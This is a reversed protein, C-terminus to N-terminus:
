LAKSLHNYRDVCQECICSKNRQSSPVQKILEAPVKKTMCWCPETANVGCSNKEQCLSCNLDTKVM